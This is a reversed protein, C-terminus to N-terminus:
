QDKPRYSIPPLRPPVTGSSDPPFPASLEIARRVATDFEPIGSSRLQRIGAVSGDPLLRVDFEVPDNTESTVAIRTQSKIKAKIHAIWGSDIRGGQSHDASGDSMNKTQSVINKITDDRFKKALLEDKKKDDAKRKDDAKKDDIKKKEDAIKQDAKEKEAALADRKEKEKKLKKKEQEIAIEPDVVVPAEKVEQPPKAVEPEPEPPKVPQPAQELQQTSWVEAEITDPKKNVWNIGIWLFALLIAHVLVALAIAAWRGPEQPVQYPTSSTMM